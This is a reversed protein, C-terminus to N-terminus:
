VAAVFLTQTTVAILDTTAAASGVVEVQLARLEPAEEDGPQDAPGHQQAHGVKACRPTRSHALEKGVCEGRQEDGALCNEVGSAEVRRENANM